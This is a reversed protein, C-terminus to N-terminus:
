PSAPIPTATVVAPPPPDTPRPTITPYQRPLTATPTVTPHPTSTIVATAELEPTPTPLDPNWLVSLTRPESEVLNVDGSRLRVFWALLGTTDVTDILAGQFRYLTGHAPADLVGLATERGSEDAVYVSFQQGPELPMPWNWSYTVLDTNLVEAGSVPSQVRLLPSATQGFANGFEATWYWVNPSKYDTTFAVGVDTAWQNLIIRRHDPSNVWFEVAQYAHEFGWATAEGAYAGQYRHWLLREAPFSGDSGAHSTFQYAAMDATHNQAAVSLEYVYKVPSLNFQRRAENIYILLAEAQSTGAPLPLPQLVFPESLDVPELVIAFPDGGAAGAEESTSAKMVVPLYTIAGTGGEVYIWRGIQTSGFDNVATLSVYYDGQRAYVHNVQAGSEAKGDGMDWVFQTVTEDGYAQGALPQGAPVFETIQMDAAPPQGVSLPWVAESRGYENQVTLRVNYIGPTQYQHTPNLETATTGDGFDWQYVLPHQGGSENIFTVIQGLGPTNDDMKFQAAPHPVVTLQRAATATGALNKAELGLEYVGVSPFVVVPDNVDVRRGDGLLWSQSIPGPGSTAGRLQVPLGVSIQTPVIIGDIQPPMGLWIATSAQSEADNVELVATIVQEPNTIDITEVRLPLVFQQSGGNASLVPRWTLENTQFNRTAGAPLINSPLNLQSPLQITIQPTYTTIDRNKTSVRLNLSDGPQGIPPDIVVTLEVAGDIYIIGPYVATQKTNAAAYKWSAFLISGTILIIFTLFISVRLRM